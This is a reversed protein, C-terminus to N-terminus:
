IFIRKDSNEIKRLTIFSRDIPSAPDSIIRYEKEEDSWSFPDFIRAGIPLCRIHSESTKDNKITYSFLGLNELIFTSPSCSFWRYNISINFLSNSFDVNCSKLFTIEALHINGKFVTKIFTAYNEFKTNTFDLDGEFVANTFDAIFYFNVGRFNAKGRFNVSTFDEGSYISTGYNESFRTFSFYSDNLESESFISGLKFKCGIFDIRTNAQIRKFNATGEFISGNFKSTNEFITGEFDPSHSYPTNYDKFMFHIGSFDSEGFFVSGSLKFAHIFIAGKFNASSAFYSGSLNFPYFIFSKSFDYTFVSWPGKLLTKTGDEHETFGSNLRSKIEFLITQRIDKEEYFEIKHKIFDERGYEDIEEETPYDKDLIYHSNALNFPARIYSCLNNIIIQGEKRRDNDEKISKDALWEDVLGVLTYLGGLRVTAKDDALQEIAKTYRSRREAHVQRIHDNENKEKEQNNKRHTEGLTIVGLVGGTTYLIFQRLVPGDDNKGFGSNIAIPLFFSLLGGFFAIAAIWLYFPKIERKKDSSLLNEVVFVIFILAGTTLLGIAVWQAIVDWTTPGPTPLMLRTPSPSPDPTM